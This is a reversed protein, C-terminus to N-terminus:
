LPVHRPTSPAAQRRWVAPTLGSIARFHHTLHAQDAYGCAAAIDAWGRSADTGLDLVRSFRQLGLWERPTLGTAARFLAIYHRHSLGSAQVQAAVNLTPPAAFAGARRLAPHCAPPRGQARALLWCEFRALRQQADAGGNLKALLADVESAHLLHELPTHHGALAGEPVGLLVSAAGPRLMAGVSAPSASIDRVHHGTRAGGVVAHGLCHGRRDTADDFLRLPPGGLRLALHTAGTPLVRERGSAPAVAVADQSWVSAVLGRLAPLPPRHVLAM